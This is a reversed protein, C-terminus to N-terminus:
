SGEKHPESLEGVVKKLYAEVLAIIKTAADKVIDTTSPHVVGFHVTRKKNAWMNGQRPLGTSVNFWRVGKADIWIGRDVFDLYFSFKGGQLYYVGITSFYEWRAYGGSFSFNKIKFILM